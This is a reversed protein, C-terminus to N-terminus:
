LLNWHCVQILTLYYLLAKHQSCIRTHVHTCSVPCDHLSSVKISGPAYRDSLRQYEQSLSEYSNKLVALADLKERVSYGLEELQPQKSLNDEPIWLVPIPLMTNMDVCRVTFPYQPLPPIFRCMSKVKARGRPFPGYTNLSECYLLSILTVWTSEISVLVSRSRLMCLDQFNLVFCQGLIWVTGAQYQSQWWFSWFTTWLQVCWALECPALQIFLCNCPDLIHEVTRLISVPWSRM